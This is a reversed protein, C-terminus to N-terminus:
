RNRNNMNKYASILSLAMFDFHIFLSLYLILKKDRFDILSCNIEPFTERWRGTDPVPLDFLLSDRAGRKKQLIVKRFLNEKNQRKLAQEIKEAALIKNDVAKIDMTNISSDVRNRYHYLAKDTNWITEAAALAQVSFLGDEAFFLETDFRIRNKEILTRSYMRSWIMAFWSPLERESSIIFPGAQLMEKGRVKKGGEPIYNWQIIDAPHEKATRLATELLDPEIWDDSDVFVIWQGSAMELATNRAFSVGKGEQHVVKLRHNRAAYDDCIRSSNDSSGNEILLCEFDAFTQALISDLCQPLFKDTNYVPVIISVKSM